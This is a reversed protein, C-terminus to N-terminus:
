ALPGAPLTGPSLWQSWQYCPSSIGDFLLTRGYVLSRAAEPFGSSSVSKGLVFSSRAIAPADSPGLV